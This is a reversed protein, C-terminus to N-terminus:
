GADNETTDFGSGVADDVAQGPRFCSAWLSRVRSNLDDRTLSWLTLLRDLDRQLDEAGPFGDYRILLRALDTLDGDRPASPEPHARVDVRNGIAGAQRLRGSGLNDAQVPSPM